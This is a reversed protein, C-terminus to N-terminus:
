YGFIWQSWPVELGGKMQVVKGNETTEFLKASRFRPRLEFLVHNFSTTNRITFKIWYVNDKHLYDNGIFSIYKDDPLAKIDDITMNGTSDEFIFSSSIVAEGDESYNNVPSTAAAIASANFAIYLFSFVLIRFSKAM